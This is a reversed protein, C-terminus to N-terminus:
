LDICDTPRELYGDNKSEYYIAHATVDLVVDYLDMATEGKVKIAERKEM